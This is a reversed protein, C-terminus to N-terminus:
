PCRRRRSRQRSGDARARRAGARVCAGLHKATINKLGASRMAGAGLVVQCTRSNFAKLFAIARAMADAGLTPLARVLRAYDALLGLAAVLAGVAFYTHEEIRVHKAAAGGDGAEEDRARDAGRGVVLLDVARQAAPPVDVPAWQEDEVLKAARALRDAHFAHLFAAAQGAAAGRLGVLMRRCLVESRVVFAWSTDFVAAFSRLPLAAHATARASLVRAARAHALEAAAALLDALDEETSTLDPPDSSAAASYFAHARSVFCPFITSRPRLSSLCCLTKRMCVRSVGCCGPTSHTSSHWSRTTNWRRCRARSRLTTPTRRARIWHQLNSNAATLTHAHGLCLAPPVRQFAAHIEALVSERWTELADKVARTRVLGDVLPRLRTRLAEADPPAALDARLV